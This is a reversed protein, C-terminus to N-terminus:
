ESVELRYWKYKGVEELIVRETELGSISILVSAASSSSLGHTLHYLLSERRQIVATWKRIM